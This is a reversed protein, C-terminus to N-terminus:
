CKKCPQRLSERLILYQILLQKSFIFSPLFVYSIGQFSQIIIMNTKQYTKAPYYNERRNIAVFDLLWFLQFIGKFEVLKFAIEEDYGKKKSSAASLALKEM